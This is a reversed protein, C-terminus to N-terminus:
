CWPENNNIEKPEYYQLMYLLSALPSLCLTIVFVSFHNNNIEFGFLFRLSIFSIIAICVTFFAYATFKKM